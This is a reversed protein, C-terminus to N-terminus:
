APIKRRMNRARFPASPHGTCLLFPQRGEAGPPRVEEGRGRSRKTHDRRAPRHPAPRHLHGARHLEGAPIRKMPQGDKNFHRPADIHTGAHDPMSIYMSALGHVNGSAAFSEEHTTWVGHVIPPHGPYTPTKHYLERSLDVIKV